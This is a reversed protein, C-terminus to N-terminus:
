IMYGKDKLALTVDDLIEESYAQVTHFHEGSTINMLPVAEGNNMREIFKKVDRRSYIELSARLQGYVTHTVFVDIVKGGADIITNLEDETNEHNHHVKFIRSYQSNM